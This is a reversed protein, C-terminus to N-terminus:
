LYWSFGIMYRVNDQARDFDFAKFTTRVSGRLSIRRTIRMELAFSGFVSDDRLKNVADSVSIISGDVTNQFRADTTDRIFQRAYGLSVSPKFRAKRSAFAQRIGIGYSYILVKNTQGIANFTTGDIPLETREETITETQSYNLEIATKDYLYLAVAGGITKSEIENNRNAGYVQKSLGYDGNIEILSWASSQILFSLLFLISYKRLNNNM